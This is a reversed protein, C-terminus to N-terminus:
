AKIPFTLFFTTGKGAESEVAVSGSMAEMLSKTISLGIGTGEEDLDPNELRSFPEFVFEQKDLPIGYGTDEIIVQLRSDDTIECDIFVSGNKKNYKIANSLLNFMVQQFRLKDAVFSFEGNLSIKNEIAVGKEQALPAISMVLDDVLPKLSLKEKKIKVQGQEITTLDLVENILNLLHDGAGLIQQINDRQLPTLNGEGNLKLLQAFGLVANMPTRLEHSMRSLFESKARNAKEAIEKAHALEATRREVGVELEDHSTLLEQKQKLLNDQKVGGFRAFLGLWFPASDIVWLLTNEAQVKLINKWTLFGYSDFSDVITAGVPFLLGFLIGYLTYNNTETKFPKTM